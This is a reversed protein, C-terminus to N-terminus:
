SILMKDRDEYYRNTGIKILQEVEAERINTYLDLHLRIGKWPGKRPVQNLSVNSGGDMLIM